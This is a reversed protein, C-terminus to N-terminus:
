RTSQIKYKWRPEIVVLDEERKYYSAYKKVQSHYNGKVDLILMGLKLNQDDYKYKILQKTFPYM